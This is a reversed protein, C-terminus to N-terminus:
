IRYKLCHITGGGESLCPSPSHFTSLQHVKNFASALSGAPFSFSLTDMLKQKSLKSQEETSLSSTDMKEGTEGGSAASGSVAASSMLAAPLDDEDMHPPTHAAGPRSATIVTSGGDAPPPPLMVGGVIGPMGGIVESGKKIQVM